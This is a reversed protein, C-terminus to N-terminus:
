TSNRSKISRAPRILSRPLGLGSAGTWKIRPRTWNFPFLAGDEPETVCPGAGSPSGSFQSAPNGAYPAKPDNIATTQFDTCATPNTCAQPEASQDVPPAPPTPGKADLDITPGSSGANGGGGSGRGGEGDSSIVKAGACGAFVGFFVLCFCARMKSLM